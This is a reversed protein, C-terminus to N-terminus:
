TLAPAWPPPFHTHAPANGQMREAQFVHLGSTGAYRLGPGTTPPLTFAHRPFAASFHAFALRPASSPPPYAFPVAVCPNTHTFSPAASGAVVASPSAHVPALVTAPLHVHEAPTSITAHALGNAAASVADPKARKGSREGGAYPDINKCLHKGKVVSICEMSTNEGM